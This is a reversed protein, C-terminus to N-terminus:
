GGYLNEIKKLISNETLKYTKYTILNEDYLEKNIILSLKLILDNPKLSNM